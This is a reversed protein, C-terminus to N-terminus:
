EGTLDEIPADRMAAWLAAMPDATSDPEGQGKLNIRVAREAESNSLDFGKKLLGEWERETLRDGAALRARLDEIEKVRTIRTRDNMAITVLSVEHLAVELLQRAKGEIRQRITNYGMSLGSLAGCKADERAERGASTASFRGKVLLGDSVETLTHWVGVPRRQDHYLLMPLSKKAALTGAIAGPMVIDGGHDINGYGVALGEIDGDDNISKVDLAFDLEDM